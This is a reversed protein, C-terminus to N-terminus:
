DPGVERVEAFGVDIGQGGVTQHCHVAIMVKAGPKLLAKAQPRLELPIYSTTFDGEAAALIGNVYVEVDEDHYVYAQLNAWPTAPLTIERRLWIDSTNWLTRVVAGPTGPTGFGAPGEKWGSAEFEPKMWDDAPKEVTYRWLSPEQRSTAVLEKIQPPQPLPAWNGVKSHDRSAWKQWLVRDALMKIFVGGVVPRAHMGGSQVRDTEYSDALPDRASTENLYDYIPSVLAEFDARNEALTASWLTWDTKTLRTRSDLPVGYRQIMAKYHAVEKRAVDPPFVNLGLIQDWVLNYKQSWTNTRDFALRYHDGEASVEM